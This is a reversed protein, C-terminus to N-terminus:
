PAHACPGKIGRNCDLHSASLEWMVRCQANTFEKLCYVRWQHIFHYQKELQSEHENFTEYDAVKWVYFTLSCVLAVFLIIVRIASFTEM